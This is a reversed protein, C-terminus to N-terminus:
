RTKLPSRVPSWKGRSLRNKRGEGERAIWIYKTKTSKGKGLGRTYIGLSKHGTSKRIRVKNKNEKYKGGGDYNLDQKERWYFGPQQTRKRRNKLEREPQRRLIVPGQKKGKLREPWHTREFYDKGKTPTARHTHSLGKVKKGKIVYPAEKRAQTRHRAVPSVDFV